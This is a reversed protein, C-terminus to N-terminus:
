LTRGVFTDIRIQIQKTPSPSNVRDHLITNIFIKNRYILSLNFYHLLATILIISSFYRARGHSGNLGDLVTNIVICVFLDIQLEFVTYYSYHLRQVNTFTVAHVSSYIWLIKHAFPNYTYTRPVKLKSGLRDLKRQGAYLPVKKCKVSNM